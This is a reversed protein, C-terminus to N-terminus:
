RCMRAWVRGQDPESSSRSPLMLLVKVIICKTSRSFCVAFFNIEMAKLSVADNNLWREPVFDDANEGYVARDRGIVWPNVGVITGQPLFAGALTAGGEPVVRELMQGCSPHLRMAEKMCAHYYTMKSVETFTVPNSLEGRSDM